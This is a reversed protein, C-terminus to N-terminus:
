KLADAEMAQRLSRPRLDSWHEEVYRLCEARGAAGFVSRWGDPVDAFTPWLAHQDEENVVVLFQGNEDDFPNDSM